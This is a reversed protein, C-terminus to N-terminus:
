QIAQELQSKWSSYLAESDDQPEYTKEAKVEGLAEQHSHYIYAGYGAGVAAGWAGNGAVVDIRVKCLDAISQSFVASRFLNDPGVRLVRPELGNERMIDVGYRFACAIGELGARLLHARSHRNVDLGLVRAGCPRNQLMREVGNGFPLVRLGDAGAPVKAAMNELVPYDETGTERRLWRYMSGAGNICLLVGIRPDQASHNVHAFNNVRNLPDARLQDSVAYVVGSTGGNGAMDGPELARMAWANNPQDGARYTIPIGEPLGTETAATKTVLGQIGFTPFIIPIIDPNIGLLSLMKEPLAHNKFDWLIGESLGSQTTGALGTLRYALYDGPLMFVATKEYVESEYIDVWHLKSATFNGPANLLHERCYNEGLARYIDDGVDVARSDCWIISPRLVKGQKDLVVLGHMQYGIGVAKVDSAQRGCAALVNRIALVTHKWWEEPDQEAWGPQPAHIVMENEPSQASALVKRTDVDVLCAKISSSGLDLGLLM